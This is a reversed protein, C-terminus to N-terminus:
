ETKTPTTAAGNVEAGKPSGSKAETSAEESEAAGNATVAPKKEDEPSDDYDEDVDMKRAAREPESPASATEPEPGAAVAAAPAAEAEDAAEKPATEAQAKESAAPAEDVQM